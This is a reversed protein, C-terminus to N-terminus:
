SVGPLQSIRNAGSRAHRRAYEELASDTLIGRLFVTMISRIIERVSLPHGALVGPNVVAEVAGIFAMLFLDIDVDGRVYGGAVGGLLLGRFDTSIRERRFKQVRAWLSPSHRQLDRMMPRSLQTLRQGLFTVLTEFKELFGTDAEVIARFEAHVEALLRDTVVLLLEDKSAFHKYFTKKSIGLSGAIEEVPVPSFGEEMFRVSASAIIRERIDPLTNDTSM